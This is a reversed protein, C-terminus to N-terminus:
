HPRTSVEIAEKLGCSICAPMRSDGPTFPVDSAVWDRANAGNLLHLDHVKVASSENALVFGVETNVPLDHVTWKRIAARLFSWSERILMDKTNEVVLVYRTLQRRTFKFSPTANTYTGDFVEFHRHFLRHSILKTADSHSGETIKKILVFRTLNIRAGNTKCMLLCNLEPESHRSWM